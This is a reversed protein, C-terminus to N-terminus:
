NITIKLNVGGMKFPTQNIIDDVDEPTLAIIEPVTCVRSIKDSNEQIIESLARTYRLVMSRVPGLNNEQTVFVKYFITWTTAFNSGASQLEPAQIGYFIFESATLEAQYFDNYYNENAIDILATDGKETNIEALKAPLNAQIIALITQEVVEIDVRM